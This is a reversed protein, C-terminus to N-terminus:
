QQFLRITYGLVSTDGTKGHGPVVLKAKPFADKVKAVTHSWEKENADAVNGKNSGLTKVLCGGFLIKESPIWAVINDRTHAEGFYRCLM